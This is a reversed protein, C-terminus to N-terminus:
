RRILQKTIEWLTSINKEKIIVFNMIQWDNGKITSYDQKNLDWSLVIDNARSSFPKSNSIISVPPNLRYVNNQIFKKVFDVNSSLIRIQRLKSDNPHIWVEAISNALLLELGVKNHPLKSWKLIDEASEKLEKPYAAKIRNIFNTLSINDSALSRDPM